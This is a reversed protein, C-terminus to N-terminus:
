ILKGAYEIEFREAFRRYREGDSGTHFLRARGGEANGSPAGIDERELIRAVQKGVGERSDIVEVSEGLHEKFAHDLFTFHTCGLILSDIRETRLDSVVSRMAEALRETGSDLYEREVYAVLEPGAVRVVTCGAAYERILRESYDNAVTATTALLAIRRGNSREAAPKVAPVVGVFPVSFRARLTELAAVSATNCAVVVLKPELQALLRGVAEVVVARLQEPAKEGYPFHGDDALYVFQEQPLRRRAWALYPLGGIGSDFFAVPRKDM